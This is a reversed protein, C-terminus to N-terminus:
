NRVHVPKAQGDKFVEVMVIDSDDPKNEWVDNAAQVAMTQDQFKLPIDEKSLTEIKYGGKNFRTIDVSYM